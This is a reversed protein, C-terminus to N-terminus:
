DDDSDSNGADVLVNAQHILQHTLPTAQRNSTRGNAVVHLDSPLMGETSRSDVEFPQPPTQTEASSAPQLSSKVAWKVPQPPPRLSSPTSEVRKKM